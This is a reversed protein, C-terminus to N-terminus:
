EFARAGTPDDHDTARVMIRTGACAFCRERGRHPYAPNPRAYGEDDCHWCEMLRKSDSLTTRAANLHRWAEREFHERTPSSFDGCALELVAVSLRANGLAKFLSLRRANEIDRPTTKPKPLDAESM